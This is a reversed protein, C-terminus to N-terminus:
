LILEFLLFLPAVAVSVNVSILSIVTFVIVLVVVHCSLLVLSSSGSPSVSFLSWIFLKCVSSALFLIHFLESNCRFNLYYFKNMVWEVKETFKPTNIWFFFLFLSSSSFGGGRRIKKNNNNFIKLRISKNLYQNLKVTFTFHTRQLNGTSPPTVNWQNKYLNFPNFRLPIVFRLM